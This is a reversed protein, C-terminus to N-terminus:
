ILQTKNTVGGGFPHLAGRVDSQLHHVYVCLQQMGLYVCMFTLVVGFVRAWMTSPSHGFEGDM